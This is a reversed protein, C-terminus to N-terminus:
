SLASAGSLDDAVERGGYRKLWRTVADEAVTASPQDYERGGVVDRITDEVKMAKPPSLNQWMTKAAELFLLGINLQSQSVLVEGIWQRFYTRNSFLSTISNELLEASKRYCILAPEMQGMLHLCRGVNGYSTGGFSEDMTEEAIIETLKEGRLFFKLAPDIMGADRRSLALNYASDHETDVGSEEKLKVGEAGWKIATLFDGNVWHM